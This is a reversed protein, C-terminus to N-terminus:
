LGSGRVTAMVVQIQWSALGAYRVLRLIVRKGAESKLLAQHEADHAYIKGVPTEVPFEFGYSYRAPTYTKNNDNM